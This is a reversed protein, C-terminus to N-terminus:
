KYIDPLEYFRGLMGQCNMDAGEDGLEESGGRYWRPM